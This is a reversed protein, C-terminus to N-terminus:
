AVAGFGSMMGFQEGPGVASTSAFFTKDISRLEETGVGKIFGYDDDSRKTSIPDQGWGIAIAQAGCLYGPAVDCSSAGVASLIPLDPEEHIIVGNWILDGGQFAPNSAVDRDRADKNFAKIDADARLDNFGRTPVFLVFYERGDQTKYPRIARQGSARNRRRAMDKLKDVMTASWRDNTTDVNGLSTAFNGASLNAESSGFLVRRSNDTLFNNRQTATAEAYPVGRGYGNDEDYRSDSIAVHSFADIVEERMTDSSWIKLGDKNAKLLDIVSKQTASKKVAIANRRWFPRVRFAFTDIAEENGTLQAAGTGRGKLSGVLPIILDKGGDILERHTKIIANAGSGMYPKLGSERVYEQWYDSQWKILELDSGVEGYAM